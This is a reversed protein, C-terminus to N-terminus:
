FRIKRRRIEEEVVRVDQPIDVSPSSLSTVLVKIKYGNELVRLQELAERNELPSEKLRPWQLLFRRTYVYLGLHKFFIRQRSFDLQHPNMGRWHPISARSFYLAEGRTNTVVKVVQPDELEAERRIPSKLTGVADGAPSQSSKLFGKVAADIARPEILPEDGQVNVIVAARARRAVEAVRDTGSRHRSSTMWVTGGFSEVVDRIREDDTAVGVSSVTRARCVRRYVWEIM